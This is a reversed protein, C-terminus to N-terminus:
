RTVPLRPLINCKTITSKRVSYSLLWGYHLDTIFQSNLKTRIQTWSVVSGGLRIQRVLPIIYYTTLMDTRRKKYSTYIKPPLLTVFIQFTLIDWYSLPLFPLFPEIGPSARSEINMRLGAFCIARPRDITLFFGMYIDRSFQSASKDVKPTLFKRYGSWM